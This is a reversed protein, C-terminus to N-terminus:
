MGVHPFMKKKVSGILKYINNIEKIELLIIVRMSISFDIIMGGKYTGASEKVLNEDFLMKVNKALSSYDLNKQM